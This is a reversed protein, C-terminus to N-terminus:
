APRTAVLLFGRDDMVLLGYGQAAVQDETTERRAARRIAAELEPRVLYRPEWRGFSEQRTTLIEGDDSLMAVAEDASIAHNPM